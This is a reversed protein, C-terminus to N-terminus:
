PAEPNWTDIVLRLTQATGVLELRRPLGDNQGPAYYDYTIRWGDQTLKRIKGAGDRETIEASSGPAPMARIWHQLRAIPLEWGLARRTLSEVQAARYQTQDATTIVAGEADERVHALAQGTPTMLWIEDTDRAHLWRVNATLGRGDYNVLVRGLVDFPAAREVRPASTLSACGSFGFMVALVVPLYFARTLIM